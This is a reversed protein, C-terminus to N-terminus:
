FVFGMAGRQPVTDGAVQAALEAIYAQLKDVDAAVFKTRYGNVIEVEVAAQGIQLRHLALQAAALRDALSPLTVTM